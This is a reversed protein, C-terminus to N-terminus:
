GIRELPQEDVEHEVSRVLDDDIEIRGGFPDVASQFPAEIMPVVPVIAEERQVDEAPLEQQRRLEARRVLVAGGSRELLDCPDDSV